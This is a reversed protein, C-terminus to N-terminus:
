QLVIGSSLVVSEGVLLIESKGGFDTSAIWVSVTPFLTNSNGDFDALAVKDIVVSVSPLPVGMALRWNQGEINGTSELAIFVLNLESLVRRVMASNRITM